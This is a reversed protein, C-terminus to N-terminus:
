LPKSYTENESADAKVVEPLWATDMYDIQFFRENNL